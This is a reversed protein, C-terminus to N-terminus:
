STPTRIGLPISERARRRTLRPACAAPSPSPSPSARLSAARVQSALYTDLKGRLGLHGNGRELYDEAEIHFWARRTAEPGTSVMRGTLGASSVPFGVVLYSYAFFHKKPTMRTHTTKCPFFLVKGPAERALGDPAAATPWTPTASRAGFYVLAAVALLGVDLWPLPSALYGPSASRTQVFAAGTLLALDLAGGLLGYCGAGVLYLQWHGALSPTM